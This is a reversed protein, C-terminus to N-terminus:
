YVQTYEGGDSCFVGYLSQMEEPSWNGWPMQYGWNKVKLLKSYEFSTSKKVMDAWLNLAAFGYVGLGVPEKGQLRLRVLTETFYPSDKFSKLGLYYNNNAASGLIEAYNDALAYREAFVDVDEAQNKLERTLKAIQKSQGLIYVVRNNLLVERALRNFDKDYNLFDYGTLRNSMGNQLFKQQIASAANMLDENDSSYVLAVNKESLKQRYYAFFTEAQSSSSGSLKLAPTQSDTPLPLIQLIQGKAYISAAEEMRNRCYPGIILKPKEKRVSLMQAMSLAFTDDCRDDAVIVNIKEGLIGGNANIDAAAIQVGDALERGYFKYGGEQPAIVVVDVAAAALKPLLMVLALIKILKAMFEVTQNVFFCGCVLM